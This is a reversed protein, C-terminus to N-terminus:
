PGDQGGGSAGMRKFYLTIIILLPFVFLLLIVLPIIYWSYWVFPSGTLAIWLAVLVMVVIDAIFVVIMRGGSQYDVTIEEGFSNNCMFLYNMNTSSNFLINNNEIPNIATWPNTSKNRYFCTGNRSLNLLIQDDGEWSAVVAFADRFTLTYLSKMQNNASDGIAYFTLLSYIRDSSGPIECLEVVEGTTESEYDSGFIINGTPPTFPSYHLPDSLFYWKLTPIGTLITFKNSHDECTSVYVLRNTDNWIVSSLPIVRMAIDGSTENESIFRCVGDYCERDQYFYGYVSNYWYLPPCDANINCTELICENGTCRESGDFACDWNQFCMCPPCMGGCDIGTEDGNQIGDVCSPYDCEGNNCWGSICDSDVLCDDYQDCPLCSGGCDIDTEDEDMYGNECHNPPPPPPEDEYVHLVRVSSLADQYGVRSCNFSYNYSGVVDAVHNEYYYGDLWTKETMTDPTGNFMLVCMADPIGVGATTRYKVQFTIQTDVVVGLPATILVLETATDDSPWVFVDYSKSIPPYMGSKYCTVTYTHNGSVDAVMILKTYFEQDPHEVLTGSSPSFADSSYTCVGGPIHVDTYEYFASLYMYDGASVEDFDTIHLSVNEAVYAVDIYYTHDLFFLDSANLSVSDFYDYHIVEGSFNLTIHPIWVGNGVTVNCKGEANTYCIHWVVSDNVYGGYGVEAGEVPLYNTDDLVTVRVLHVESLPTFASYVVSDEQGICFDNFLYSDFRNHPDTVNVDFCIADSCPLGCTYDLLFVCKGSSDTMCSDPIADSLHYFDSLSVNVDEIGEWTDTDKVYWTLSYYDTQNGHVLDMIYADNSTFNWYIENPNNQFSNNCIIDVHDDVAFHIYNQSIQWSYEHFVNVAFSQKAYSNCEMSTNEWPIPYCTNGGLGSDYQCEIGWTGDTIRWNKPAALSYLTANMWFDSNALNATYEGVVNNHLWLTGGAETISGSSWSWFDTNVADDEFDDTYISVTTCGCVVGVLLLFGLVFLLRKMM